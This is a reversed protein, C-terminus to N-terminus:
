LDLVHRLITTGREDVFRQRETAGVARAVRLSPVNAQDILLHATRAGTQDRLFRVALRVASSAVGQGRHEPHTSYSVNAEGAPVKDNALDCDVHGASRFEGADVSFTWKPGGGFATATAQLGAQAHARRDAESMSAWQEAQGPLWLWRVQERDKAALDAELDLGPARRRISVREDGYTTPPIPRKWYPNGDLDGVRLFRARAALALSRRNAPDILLTATRQEGDLALQHLLLQLARTAVGRGRHSAFVHYGLNVEGPQLWSRDNDVDVWGVVAGGAVVCRAPTPEPDGPGLFRQFEADRGAVLVAADGPRPPRILVVGDSTSRPRLM